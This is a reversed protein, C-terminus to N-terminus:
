RTNKNNKGCKAKGDRPGRTCAMLRRNKMGDENSFFFLFFLGFRDGATGVVPRGARQLERTGDLERM